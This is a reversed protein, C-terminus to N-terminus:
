FPLVSKDIIIRKNKSVLQSFCKFTSCEHIDQVVGEEIEIILNFYNGSNNGVFTFGDCKFNCSESNCQGPYRQLFTDGSLIFEDIAYGLHQIFIHKDYNQYTRNPELVADIMEIDLHQLFHLVADSQTKMEM